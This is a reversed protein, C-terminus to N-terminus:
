SFCILLGVKMDEEDLDHNKKATKSKNKYQSCKPLNLDIHNIYKNVFPLMYQFKNISELTSVLCFANQFV